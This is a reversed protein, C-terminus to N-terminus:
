IAKYYIGDRQFYEDDNLLAYIEIKSEDPLDACVNVLTAWGTSVVARIDDLLM